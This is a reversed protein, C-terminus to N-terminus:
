QPYNKLIFKLTEKESPLKRGHLIIQKALNLKNDYFKWLTTIYGEKQINKNTAM